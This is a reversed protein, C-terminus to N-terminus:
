RNWFGRRERERPGEEENGAPSTPPPSASLTRGREGQGPGGAPDAETDAPANAPSASREWEDWGGGNPAHRSTSESAAGVPARSEELREVYDEMLKRGAALDRNLDDIIAGAPQATETTADVAGLITVLRNVVHKLILTIWILYGAIVAIAVAVGFLFVGQAANM